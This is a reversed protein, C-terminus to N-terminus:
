EINAVEKKNFHCTIRYSIYYLALMVVPSVVQIFSVAFVHTNCWEVFTVIDLKEGFWNLDGFFLFGIVVFAIVMIIAIKVLMAKDRGLLIFMPLEIAASLLGLSIFPAIFAGLLTSVALLDGEGCFANCIIGWIMAVSFFIYASVGIFVYKSAIYTNKEIPMSYVYNKIKNKQDGGVIKSVWGNMLGIVGVVFLGQGMIFFTDLLNVEQGLENTAMFFENRVCGPFAIRLVSYVLTLFTIYVILKKGNVSVFDKYLLGGM